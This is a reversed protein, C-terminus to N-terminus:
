QLPFFHQKKQRDGQSHMVLRTTVLVTSITPGGRFFQSSPTFPPPSANTALTVRIAATRETKKTLVTLVLTWACLYSSFCSLIFHNSEIELPVYKVLAKPALLPHNRHWPGRAM